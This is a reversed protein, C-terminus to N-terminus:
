QGRARGCYVRGVVGLGDLAGTKGGGTVLRGARRVWRLETRMWELGRGRGKEGESWTGMQRTKMQSTKGQMRVVKAM